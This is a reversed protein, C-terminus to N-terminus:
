AASDIINSIATDANSAVESITERACTLALDFVTRWIKAAGRTFLDRVNFLAFLEGHDEGLIGCFGNEIFCPRVTNFALHELDHCDMDDRRYTDKLAQTMCRQAADLFQQGEASFRSRESQMKNCYYQGTKLIYWTRGCPLRREFCSYFECSGADAHALCSSEIERGNARAHVRSRFLFASTVCLLVCLVLIQCVKM